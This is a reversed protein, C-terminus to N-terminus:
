RCFVSSELGYLVTISKVSDETSSKLTINSMSVLNSHRSSSFRCSFVKLDNGFSIDYSLVRLVRFREFIKKLSKSCVIALMAVKGARFLIYM